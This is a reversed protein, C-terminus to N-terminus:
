IVENILKIITVPKDSIVDSVLLPMEEYTAFVVSLKELDKIQELPVSKSLIELIINSIDPYTIQKIKSLYEPTYGVFDFLIFKEHSRNDFTQYGILVYCSLSELKEQDTFFHLGYRQFQEDFLIEAFKVDFLRKLESLGKPPIRTVDIYTESVSSTIKTTGLEETSIEFTESDELLFNTGTLWNDLVKNLIM